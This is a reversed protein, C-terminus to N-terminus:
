GLQLPGYQLEGTAMCESLDLAQLNFDAKIARLIDAWDDGGRLAFGHIYLQKLSPKFGQLFTLHCQTSPNLYELGLYSLDQLPSEASPSPSWANFFKTVLTRDRSRGPFILSLSQLRSLYSLFRPIEAKYSHIENYDSYLKM